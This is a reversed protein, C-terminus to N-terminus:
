QEPRWTRHYTTLKDEAQQLLASAQELGVMAQDVLALGQVGDDSKTGSVNSLVQASLAQLRTHCVMMKQKEGALEAITRSLSHSHEDAPNPM